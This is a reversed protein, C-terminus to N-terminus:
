GRPSTRSNRDSSPEGAVGRAVLGAGALEELTGVTGGRQLGRVAILAGASGALVRATPTWRSLIWRSRARRPRGPAADDIHLREHVATVGRVRGIAQVTRDLDAGAITGELSVMGRDARVAIRSPRATVRGLAERVREALVTDDVPEDQIRRRFDEVGARVRAVAGISRNRMDRGAADAFRLIKAQAARFQGAVAARRQRGELPDTFYSVAAGILAARTRPMRPM